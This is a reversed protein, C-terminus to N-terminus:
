VNRSFGLSTRGAQFRPDYSKALVFGSLIFFLDVALYGFRLGLGGINLNYHYWVVLLAAVGRLADLTVYRGPRQQVQLERPQGHKGQRVAALGAIGSVKAATMM